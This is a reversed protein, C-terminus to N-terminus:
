KLMNQIYTIWQLLRYKKQIYLMFFIRYQVDLSHIVEKRSWKSIEFEDYWTELKQKKDDFTYETQVLLKRICLCVEKIFKTEVLTMSINDAFLQRFLTYSKQFVKHVEDIRKDFYRTSLTNTDGVRYHYLQDTIYSIRSCGKLYELNFILDEGLSLSEDFYKEILRRRYLKCVPANFMDKRYFFSFNRGSLDEVKEIPLYMPLEAGIRKNRSTKKYQCMVLDCAKHGMEQFLRECMDKEVYDDSDVFMVYESNAQQLGKNRAASVGRNSQHIVKIRNDLEAYKKCIALSDDESGDNVLIIELQKETQAILSEICQSLYAETNYVPIIVSIRAM